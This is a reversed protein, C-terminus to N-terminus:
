LNDDTRDTPVPRHSAGPIHQSMGLIEKLSTSFKTALSLTYVDIKLYRKVIKLKVPEESFRIKTPQRKEVHIKDLEILCEAYERQNPTWKANKVRIWGECEKCPRTDCVSFHTRWARKIAMFTDKVSCETFETEKNYIPTKLTKLAHVNFQRQEQKNVTKM